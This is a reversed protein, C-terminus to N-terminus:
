EYVVTMKPTGAVVVTLGISFPCSFEMTGVTKAADLNCIVTGAASLGDYAILSGQNDTITIRHLDGAGRKLITTGNTAYRYTPNTNLEGQRMIVVGLCDFVVNDSTVSDNYNEFRIPLTLKRVTHQGAIKHLAKNNIYFFVGMPTWEIDLKYYNSNDIEFTTGYNGNFSGSSIITDDASPNDGNRYVVSFTDGNLEFFYGNEDDYAGCRRINGDVNTDNFKFAGIFLNSSGVVFRARRVSQYMASSGSGTGTILKIEGRQVVSGTGDITETWFNTDKLTGDFNTGVLRFSRNTSLTLTPTIWAHRNTNEKGTLTSETRLRSDDSLSSPLPTAIPCLVGQLRFYTTDIQIDLVVRIRWYSQTAQVTEGQGGKSAIYNYPYSIDWEINDSSQEIYITANQDTKLSWQLGVVGLTSTGTGTFTYSNSSTLNDSSTNNPDAVVDQKIHKFYSM